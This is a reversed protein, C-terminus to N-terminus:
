GGSRRGTFRSIVAGLFKVTGYILGVLLLLLGVIIVGITTPSEGYVVQPPRRIPNADTSPQFYIEDNAPRPSSYDEFESLWFRRGPAAAPLHLTKLLSASDDSAM